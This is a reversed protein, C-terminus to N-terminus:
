TSLRRFHMPNRSTLLCPDLICQIGHRSYILTQFLSLFFFLVVFMLCFLSQRRKLTLDLTLSLTNRALTLTLTQLMPNELMFLHPQIVNSERVQTSLSRFYILNGSMLLYPYSIYQIEKHSYVLTQFLNSESAHISLPRFYTPNGPTLLYLDSIM